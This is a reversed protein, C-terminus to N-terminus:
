GECCWGVGGTKCCWGAGPWSKLEGALRDQVKDKPTAVTPDRYGSAESRVAASLGAVIGTASPLPSAAGKLAAKAKLATAADKASSGFKLAAPTCRMQQTFLAVAAANTCSIIPHQTEKAHKWHYKCSLVAPLGHM